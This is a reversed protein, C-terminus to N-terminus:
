GTATRATRLSLPPPCSVATTSGERLKRINPPTLTDPPSAQFGVASCVALTATGRSTGSVPRLAVRNDTRRETKVIEAGEASYVASADQQLSATKSRASIILM